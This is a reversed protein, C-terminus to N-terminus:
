ARELYGEATLRLIPEGEKNYLTKMHPVPVGNIFFGGAELTEDLLKTLERQAEDAYQPDPEGCRTCRGKIFEHRPYSVNTREDFCQHNNLYSM